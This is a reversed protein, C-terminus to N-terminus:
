RWAGLGRAVIDDDAYRRTIWGMQDPDAHGDIDLDIDAGIVVGDHMPLWLLANAM